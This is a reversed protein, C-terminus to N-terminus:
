KISCNVCPFKYVKSYKAIKKFNRKEARNYRRFDSKQKKCLYEEIEGKFDKCKEKIEKKTENLCKKYAKCNSKNCEYERLFNDRAERYRSHLAEMDTKFNSYVMDICEEQRKTLCLNKKMNRYKKDFFCQNYTFYEDDDIKYEAYKNQSEKCINKKNCSNEQLKKQCETKCEENFSGFFNENGKFSSAFSVSCFLMTIGFLFLKKKM